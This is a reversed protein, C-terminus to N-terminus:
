FLEKEDIFKGWEDMLRKAVDQISHVVGDSDMIKYAEGEGICWTGDVLMTCDAKGSYFRTEMNHSNNLEFHKGKNAVFGALNLLEEMDGFARIDRSENLRFESKIYDKLHYATVFFNFINYPSIDEILTKYELQAKEYLEKSTLTFFTNKYYATM